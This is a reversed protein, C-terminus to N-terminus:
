TIKSYVRRQALSLLGLVRVVARMSCLITCWTTIYSYLYHRSVESEEVFSPPAPWGTSSDRVHPESSRPGDPRARRVRRGPRRRRRLSGQGELERREQGRVTVTQVSTREQLFLGLVRVVAQMLCLIITALYRHRWRRSVESRLGERATRRAGERLSRSSEEVVSPPATRDAPSNSVQPESSRPGDGTGPRARRPRRRNSRGKLEKRGQGGVAATQVNTGKKNSSAKEM